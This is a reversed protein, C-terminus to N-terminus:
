SFGEGKRSNSKSENARATNHAVMERLLALTAARGRGPSGIIPTWIGEQKIKGEEEEKGAEM